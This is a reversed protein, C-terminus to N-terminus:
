KSLFDSGYVGGRRFVYRRLAESKGAAEEQRVTVLFTTLGKGAVAWSRSDILKRLDLPSLCYYYDIFNQKYKSHNILNFSIISRM